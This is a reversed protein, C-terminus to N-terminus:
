WSLPAGGTTAREINGLNDLATEILLKDIFKQLRCLFAGILATKSMCLPNGPMPFQIASSIKHRALIRGAVCAPFSVFFFRVANSLSAFNTARSDKRVSPRSKESGGFDHSM